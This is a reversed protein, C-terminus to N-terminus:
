TNNITENKDLEQTIRGIFAELRATGDNYKCTLLGLTNLALLGGITLDTLIPSPWILVTDLEDICISNSFSPRKENIHHACPGVDQKYTYVYDKLKSTRTIM